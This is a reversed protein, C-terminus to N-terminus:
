PTRWDVIQVGDPTFNMQWLRGDAGVRFEVRQDYETLVWPSSQRRLERLESDLVIMWYRESRVRFPSTTEFDAEHVVLHVRGQADADCWVIRHIPASARLSATKEAQRDNRRHLAVRVGGRGDLAAHLSRANAVPRGLVIQRDCPALNRDLVKVSYRHQVELWVGDPRPLMATILGPQEIGRGELPVEALKKGKRDMVLLTKGVLRDLALVARGEFHELDDFTTSPLPITGAEAGTADLQVIRGYVQDLVWVAGDPLVTFSKPGESDAETGIVRGVADDWALVAWPQPAASRTTVRAESAALGIAACALAAVVIQKPRKKM